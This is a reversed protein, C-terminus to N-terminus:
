RASIIQYPTRDTNPDYRASIIQYGDLGFRASLRPRLRPHAGRRPGRAHPWRGVKARIGCLLQKTSVHARTVMSRSQSTDCRFRKTTAVHPLVKQTRRRRAEGERRRRARGEAEQRAQEDDNADAASDHERVGACTQDVYVPCICLLPTHLVHLSRRRRRGRRTRTRSASTRGARWFPRWRRWRSGGTIM